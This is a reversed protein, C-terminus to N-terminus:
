STSFTPGGRVGQLWHPLTGWVEKVMYNSEPDDYPDTLNENNHHILHSHRFRIYPIALGLAPFVLMQGFFKWRPEIQHLTEHQLSSHLTILPILLIISM